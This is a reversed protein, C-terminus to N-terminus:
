TTGSSFRENAGGNASPGHSDPDSDGEVIMRGVVGMLRVFPEFVLNTVRWLGTVGWGVRKGLVYVVAALFAVFSVVVMIREITDRRALRSVLSRSTKLESAVESYASRTSSLVSTSAGIKQNIEESREVEAQLMDSAKKLANTLQESARDAQEQVYGKSTPGTLYSGLLERRRSEGLSDLQRKASLISLRLTTQLTKAAEDHPELIRSAAERDIARPLDEALRHAETVLEHLASISERVRDAASQLQVLSGIGDATALVDLESKVASESDSVRSVITVEAIVEDSVWGGARLRTFEKASGVDLEIPIYECELIKGAIEDESTRISYGIASEVEQGGLPVFDIVLMPLKTLRTSEIRVSDLSFSPDNEPSLFPGLPLYDRKMDFDHHLSGHEFLNESGTIKTGFKEIFVPNWGNGFVLGPSILAVAAAPHSELYALTSFCASGQAVVISPFPISPARPRIINALEEGFDTAM